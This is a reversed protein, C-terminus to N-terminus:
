GEKEFLVIIKDNSMSYSYEYQVVSLLMLLVHLLYKLTLYAKPVVRGGEAHPLLFTGDCYRVFLTVHVAGPLPLALASM